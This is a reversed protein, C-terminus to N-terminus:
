KENKNTQIYELTQPSDKPKKSLGPYVIELKIKIVIIKIIQM